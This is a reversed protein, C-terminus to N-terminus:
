GGEESSSYDFIAKLKKKDKDSQIKMDEREDDTIPRPATVQWWDDNGQHVARYSWLPRANQDNGINKELWAKLTKERVRYPIKTDVPM